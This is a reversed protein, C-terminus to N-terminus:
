QKSRVDIVRGQLMRRTSPDLKQVQVDRYSPDYDEQRPSSSGSSSSSTAKVGDVIAEAYAKVFDNKEFFANSKIGRSTLEKRLDGVSMSKAKAMEEQIREARSKGDDGTTESSTTSTSQKTDKAKTKTM